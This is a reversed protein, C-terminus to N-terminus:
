CAVGPLQCFWFAPGLEVVEVLAGLETEMGIARVQGVPTPFSM